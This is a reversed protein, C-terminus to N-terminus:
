SRLVLFVIKISKHVSKLFYTLFCNLTFVTVEQMCYKAVLADVM